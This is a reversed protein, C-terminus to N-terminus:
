TRLCIHSSPLFSHLHRSAVVFFAVIFSLSHVFEAHDFHFSQRCCKWKTGENKLRIDNNEPKILFMREMQTLKHWTSQVLINGYWLVLRLSQALMSKPIIHRKLLVKREHKNMKTKSEHDIDIKPLLHAMMMQLFLHTSFLVLYWYCFGVWRAKRIHITTHISWRKLLEATKRWSLFFVVFILIFSLLRLHLSFFMHTLLSLFAMMGSLRLIADTYIHRKHEWLM